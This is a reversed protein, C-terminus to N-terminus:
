KPRNGKWIGIPNGGPKDYVYPEEIMRTSGYQKWPGYTPTTEIKGYSPRFNWKGGVSPKHIVNWLFGGKIGGIFPLNLKTNSAQLQQQSKQLTSQPYSYGQAVNFLNIDFKGNNSFGLDKADYHIMIPKFAAGYNAAITSPINVPAVTGKPLKNKIGDIANKAPMAPPKEFQSPVAVKQDNQINNNNQEEVNLTLKQASILGIPEYRLMKLASDDVRGKFIIQGNNSSDIVAPTNSAETQTQTPLQIEKPVNVQGGNFLDQALKGQQFDIPPTVLNVNLFDDKDKNFNYNQELNIPFGIDATNDVNAPNNILKSAFNAANSELM